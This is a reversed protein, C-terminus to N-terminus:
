TQDKTKCLADSTVVHISSPILLVHKTRISHEKSEGASFYKRLFLPYDFRCGCRLFVALITLMDLNQIPSKLTGGDGFMKPSKM